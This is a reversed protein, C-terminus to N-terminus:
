VFSHTMMKIKIEGNKNKEAVQCFMTGPDYSIIRSSM